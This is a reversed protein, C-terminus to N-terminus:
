QVQVSRFHPLLAFEHPKQFALQDSILRLIYNHDHAQIAMDPSYYTFYPEGRVKFRRVEPQRLEYM